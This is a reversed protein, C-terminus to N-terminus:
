PAQRVARGLSYHADGDLVTLAYTRDSIRAYTVPGEWSWNGGRMGSGTGTPWDTNGTAAGTPGLVGDGLSGRFARGTANGVTVVREWLNGSLEMVGYYGAGSLQRSVNLRSANTAAFLGVRTPGGVGGNASNCNAGATSVTETGSGPTGAEAALNTISTTGWAYENPVPNAPGRCAKEFELETMPRLAAWDAYAIGDAWGLMSCARDPASASYYNTTDKSITYRYSSSSTFRATTQAATLKNLFDAYQGQSVEYKMCYFAAYGKPFANSIVGTKDGYNDYYLWGNTTGVPIANTESVMLYPQNTDPYQYFHGAESGGSGLMFACEPIYVMEIAHVSVEILDGKTFTYGNSGYNWQLKTLPYSVTGTISASNYIFVGKGDPVTKITSGGTAKHDASNTSLTAHQWNNSGPARFKVFVWAADWNDANRFSNNWSLDFVVNAIKLDENKGTMGINTVTIGNAGAEGMLLLLGGGGAVLWRVTKKLAM